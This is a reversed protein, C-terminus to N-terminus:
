ESVVLLWHRSKGPAPHETLGARAEREREIKLPLPTEIMGTQKGATMVASMVLGGALGGVAGVVVNDMISM